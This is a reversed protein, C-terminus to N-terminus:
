NVYGIIGKYEGEHCGRIKNIYDAIRMRDSETIEENLYNSYLVFICSRNEIKFNPFAIIQKPQGYESDIISSLSDHGEHELISIRIKRNDKFIVKFINHSELPKM